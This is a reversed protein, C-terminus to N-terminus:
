GISGVSFGAQRLAQRVHAAAQEVSLLDKPLLSAAATALSDLESQDLRKSTAIVVPIDRTAPDARLQVLVESGSMGPMVLDLFIASPHRTRALRLGEVGEDAEIVTWASEDLHRRLVYRAARDDDILLASPAVAETTLRRLLGLFVEKEVPKVVYADAGLAFGKQQDDVASIMVVPVQATADNTKLESLFRWTDENRLVVDLVIAAPRTWIERLVQRADRLSRAFVPQFQSGRLYADYVLMSDAADEVILVPRRGAEPQPLERLPEAQDRPEDYVAPIVVTFTSGVGVSSTVTLRGGLLEALKRSLPLGLGTGRVRRQVDHEVQTFEEFVREQDEPAIGIGTDSVSFAVTGAAADHAAAVRVEGRETFKLANSIFNRLIQSVKPEDSYLVPVGIPEEFVLSVSETGLLPRLMGRLAGFLNGVEFETPRVVIKGAEVKALDLLDNVLEFLDQAAKRIFSVQLQQETSLAGDHGDLLLRTLALMSNLPTRFEHSVNSVVRTKVEATRRLSDAKEDLETYLALVGRNTEDLERALREVEAMDILTDEKSVEYPIVHYLRGSFNIRM